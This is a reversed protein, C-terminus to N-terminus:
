CAAAPTSALAAKRLLRNAQADFQNVLQTLEARALRKLANSSASAGVEAVSFGQRLRLVLWIAQGNAWGRCAADFTAYIQRRLANRTVARKALRKPVVVGIASKLCKVSKVSPQHEGVGVAESPTQRAPQRAPLTHAPPTAMSLHLAFHPTSAVPAHKLVAKFQEPSTLHPCRTGM